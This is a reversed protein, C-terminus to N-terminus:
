KNKNANNRIVRKALPWVVMLGAVLVFQVVIATIVTAMDIPQGKYIVLGLVSVLWLQCFKTMFGKNIITVAINLM